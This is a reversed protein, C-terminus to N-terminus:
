KKGPRSAFPNDESEEALQRALKQDAESLKDLAVTVTDGDEKELTVSGNSLEVFKARVQFKSGQSSWTRLTAGAPAKKGEPGGAPKIRDPPLTPTMVIGNQPFKVKIWGTPALDVVEATYTTGAWEVMVKDGVQYAAKKADGSTSPPKGPSGGRTITTQHRSTRAGDGGEQTQTITTTTTGKGDTTTSVQVPAPLAVVQPDLYVTKGGGTVFSAQVTVQKISRSAEQDLPLEVRAVGGRPSLDLKRSAADPGLQPKGAKAPDATIPKMVFQISASKLKKLPDIVPVAIDYRPAAGDVAPTVTVTPRGLGGELMAAVEGAPITMGINSGQITQVAVGVLNGGGDVVPGGSNGPNLSGDIQVRVVKGSKDKRLSSVSGRGITINPNAKNTSLSDGFPFGLVFVPMTEAPQIARRFEIARPAGRLSSVKLVALDPDEVQCLVEAKVVQEGPEGSNFVVSVVPESAALARQIRMLTIRDRGRLGPIFGGPSLIKPKAVVHQNTVILASDGSSQIVFGSGSLALPGIAVKVYVTAEKLRRATEPALSEDAHAAATALVMVLATRISSSLQGM